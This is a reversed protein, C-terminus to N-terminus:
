NGSICTQNYDLIIKVLDDKGYLGDQIKKVLEPCDSLYDSMSKKFSFYNIKFLDGNQKQLINVNVSYITIKGAAQMGGHNPFEYLKLDGDIIQRLLYKDSSFCSCLQLDQAFAVFKYHTNEYDFHLEKISDPNLTIKKHKENYMVVGCKISSMNIEDLLPEMIIRLNIKMTNNSLNIYYGSIEKATIKHFTFFLTFLFLQKM